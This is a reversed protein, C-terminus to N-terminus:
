RRRKLAGIAALPAWIWVPLLIIVVTGGRWLYVAYLGSAIGVAGVGLGQGSFMASLGGVAILTWLVAAAIRKASGTEADGTVPRPGSGETM